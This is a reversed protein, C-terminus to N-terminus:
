SFAHHFRETYYMVLDWESDPVISHDPCPLFGGMEVFRRLRDIEAAIHTRDTAFLSKDMGGIGRVAAGYKEKMPAFNGGWKGVEIPFMTNVGNGIWTPLLHDIMGDCDVARTEVGHRILLQTVRKYHPGIYKRFFEPNVLPGKDFCIDEWFFAYDWRIGTELMKKTTQFDVEAVANLIEHFLDPDDAQMYSMNEVGLMNRVQGIMSGCFIGIPLDEDKSRERAREMHAENVRGSYYTLRPLFLEEWSKRDNLLWGVEAHVSMVGPSGMEITGYYTRQEYKGDPYTKVIDTAFEPFLSSSGGMSGRGPQDKILRVLLNYDFGLKQVIKEDENSNDRGGGLVDKSIHGEAEWKELTKPWFGFNICPLRDYPEGNMVARFRERQTM